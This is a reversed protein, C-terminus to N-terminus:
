PRAGAGPLTPLFWIALGIADVPGVAGAEVFSGSTTTQVRGPLRDPLGSAVPEEVLDTGHRESGGRRLRVIEPRYGDHACSVHFAIPDGARVSLRDAYGVIKM